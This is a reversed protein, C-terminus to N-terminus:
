DQLEKLVNEAHAATRVYYNFVWKTFWYFFPFGVVYWYMLYSTKFLDGGGLLKVMVPLIVVLLLASLYFNLKQFQVFRIKGKSYQLLSEKYNNTLIDVSRLKRVAQFSLVPMICLILTTAIGCIMLYWGDLKQFNLVIYIAQAYCLLAGFAEPLVIKNIKNHYRSETMKVIVSDTLKKQKEMERSMEGWLAKMEELEM